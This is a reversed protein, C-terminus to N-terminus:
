PNFGRDLIAALRLAEADNLTLREQVPAKGPARLREIAPHVLPEVEAGHRAEVVRGQEAQRVVWSALAVVERLLEAKQRPGLGLREQLMELEADLLANTLAQFRSM